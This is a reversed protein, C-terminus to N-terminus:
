VTRNNKQIGRSYDIRANRGKGEFFSNALSGMIVSILLCIGFILVLELRISKKVKDWIVNYLKIVPRFFKKIIKPCRIKM